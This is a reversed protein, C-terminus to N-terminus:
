TPRALEGTLGSKRIIESIEALQGARQDCHEKIRRWHQQTPSHEGVSYRRVQRGSIDIVKGIATQWRDGFLLEGAERLITTESM